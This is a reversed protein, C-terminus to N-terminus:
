PSAPVKQLSVRHLVHVHRLDLYLLLGLHVPGLSGPNHPHHVEPDGGGHEAPLPRRLCSCTYAVERGAGSDFTTFYAGSKAGFGSLTNFTIAALFALTGAFMLAVRAPSRSAMTRIQPCLDAFVLIEVEAFFFRPRRARKPGGRAYFCSNYRECVEEAREQAASSARYTGAHCSLSLEQPLLRCSTSHTTGAKIPKFQADRIKPWLCGTLHSFLPRLTSVVSSYIPFQVCYFWIECRLTM